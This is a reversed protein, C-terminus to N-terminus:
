WRHLLVPPRQTKPKHSHSREALIAPKIARLILTTITTGKDNNWKGLEGDYPTIKM